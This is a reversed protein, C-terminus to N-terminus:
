LTGGLGRCLQREKMTAPLLAQIQRLHHPITAALSSANPMPLAGSLSALRGTPAAAPESIDARAGAPAGGAELTHSLHARRGRM